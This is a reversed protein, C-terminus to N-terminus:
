LHAGLVIIRGKLRYFEARLDNSSQKADDDRQMLASLDAVLPQIQEYLSKVRDVNITSLHRGDTERLRKLDAVRETFEEVTALVASFHEPFALAALASKKSMTAMNMGWNVDSTDFLFMSHIERIFRDDTETFTAKTVEYAYSMETIAGEKIGELIENARDTNLYTRTVEAGGTADPAFKLVDDPLEDRGVERIGKVTAIPPTQGRDFWGGGHNWLHKVRNRGATAEAFAGMHSRDGGDDVNGHVAFIGVVTRDDITKIAQPSYKVEVGM